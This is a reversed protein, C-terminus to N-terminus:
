FFCNISSIITHVWQPIDLVSIHWQFTDTTKSIVLLQHFRRFYWLSVTHLYYSSPTIFPWIEQLSSVDSCQPRQFQFTGTFPSTMLLLMFCAWAQFWWVFCTIPSSHRKVKGSHCSPCLTPWFSESSCAWAFSSRTPFETPSSIRTLLLFLSIMIASYLSITQLHQLIWHSIWGTCTLYSHLFLNSSHSSTPSGQFLAGELAHCFSFQARLKKFWLNLPKKNSHLGYTGEFWHCNLRQKLFLPSLCEVRSEM